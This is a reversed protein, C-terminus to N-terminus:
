REGYTPIFHKIIHYHDFSMMEPTIDSLLFWKAEAADDAGKVKPLKVLPFGLDIHFGHTVFRGRPDRNPADFVEISKISGNLVKDPVKVCTEERLEKIMNERIRKNKDLFGGPLAWCDKYPFRGRKILLIYGSQTLVADTTVFASPFSFGKMRSKERYEMTEGYSQYLGEWIGGIRGNELIIRSMEAYAAEPMSNPIEVNYGSASADFMMDRIDTADIGDVNPVEISNKSWDPFIKLYYSTHDKSHGILGVKPPFDTWGKRPMTNKVVNQTASVWANDDYPYDMVGVITLRNSAIEDPYVASIIRKREEFTFPNRTAERAQFSSGLVIIANDAKELATDVIAKHGLHFPQARMVTVLTDFEKRM